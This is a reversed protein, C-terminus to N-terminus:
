APVPDPALVFVEVAVDPNVHQDSLFAAVTRGTLREVAGVLDERMTRQFTRRTTVVMDSEGDAVLRREAKTLTEELVVAVLDRGFSTRVRTPGRGIHEAYVAVMANSVASALEGGTPGTHGAIERGDNTM